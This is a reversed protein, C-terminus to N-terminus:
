MISQSMSNSETVVKNIPEERIIPEDVLSTELLEKQASAQAMQFTANKVSNMLMESYDDAYKKQMQVIPHNMIKQDSTSGYAQLQGGQLESQHLM